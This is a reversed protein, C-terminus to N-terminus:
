RELDGSLEDLESRGALKDRGREVAALTRHLAIEFTALKGDVYEDVEARMSAASAQAEELLRTADEVAQRHVETEAVLQERERQAREVIRAAEARGQEVLAERDGLVAQARDLEAPLLARLRALQELLEGRHVLVSASMPARRAQEVTRVVEDLADQLPDTV